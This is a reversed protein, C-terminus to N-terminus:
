WSLLIQTGLIFNVCCCLVNEPTPFCSLASRLNGLQMKLLPCDKLFWLLEELSSNCADLLASQSSDRRTSFNGPIALLVDRWFARSHLQYYHPRCANLAREVPWSCCEARVEALCASSDDEKNRPATAASLKLLQEFDLLGNRPLFLLRRM